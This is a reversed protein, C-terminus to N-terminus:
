AYSGRASRGRVPSRHRFQPLDHILPVRSSQRDASALDASGSRTHARRFPMSPLDDRAQFILEDREVVASAFRGAACSTSNTGAGVAAIARRYV